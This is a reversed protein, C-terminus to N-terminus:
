TGRHPRSASQVEPWGAAQPRGRQAREARPRGLKRRRPRRLRQANRSNAAMQAVTVMRAAREHACRATPRPPRRTGQGCGPRECTSAAQVAAAAEASCRPVKRSRLTTVTGTVGLRFLARRLRLVPVMVAPMGSSCPGPRRASLQVAESDECRWSQTRADHGCKTHDHWTRRGAPDRKARVHIVARRTARCNSYPVCQM